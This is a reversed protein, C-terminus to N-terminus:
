GDDDKDDFFGKMVQQGALTSDDDEIDSMKTNKEKAKNIADGVVKSTDKALNGVAKDLKTEKIVDITKNLIDPDKDIIDKVKDTEKKLAAKAADMATKNQDNEDVIKKIAKETNLRKLAKKLQEDTMKDKNEWLKSLDIGHKEESTDGTIKKMAAKMMPTDMFQYVENAKKGYKLVTDLKDLATKKGKSAVEALRRETDIRNLRENIEATTLLDRHKYLEEANTSKLLKARTAERKAAAEEEAKKKTEESEEQSYRKKGASTLSGDKNQYRRIGWKMGRIGWHTLENEM